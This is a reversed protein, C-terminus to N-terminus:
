KLGALIEYFSHETGGFIFVFLQEGQLTFM